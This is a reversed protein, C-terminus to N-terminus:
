LSVDGHVKWVSALDSNTRGIWLTSRIQGMNARRIEIFSSMDDGVAQTGTAEDGVVFMVCVEHWVREEQKTTTGTEVIRGSVPKSRRVPKLLVHLNSLLTTDGMFQLIEGKEM